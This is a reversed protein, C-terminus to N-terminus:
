PNSRQVLLLAPLGVAVTATVLATLIVAKAMGQRPDGWRSKVVATSTIRDHWSRGERDWLMSLAGLGLAAIDVVLAGTRYAAEGVSLPTSGNARVLRIGCIRKGVTQGGTQSSCCVLYFISGVVGAALACARSITEEQIGFVETRTMLRVVFGIYGVVDEILGESRLAPLVCVGIVVCCDVMLAVVRRSFSARVLPPTARSMATLVGRSMALRRSVRVTLRLMGLEPHGSIDVIWNGIRAM